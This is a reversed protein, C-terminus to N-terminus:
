STRGCVLCQWNSALTPCFCHLIRYHFTKLDVQDAHWISQPNLEPLLNNEEKSNHDFDIEKIVKGNREFECWILCCQFFVQRKSTILIIVLRKSRKEHHRGASDARGRDFEGRYNGRRRNELSPERRPDSWDDRRSSRDERDRPRYTYDSRERRFKDRARRRDYEDDSDEM